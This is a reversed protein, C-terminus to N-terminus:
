DCRVTEIWGGCRRAKKRLLLLARAPWLSRLTFPYFEYYGGRAWRAGGSPYYLVYYIM